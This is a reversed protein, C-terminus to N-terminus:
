PNETPLPHFIDEQLPVPFRWDFPFVDEKSLSLASMANNDDSAIWGGDIWWFISNLTCGTDTDVRFVSVIEQGSKTVTTGSIWYVGSGSPVVRPSECTLQDTKSDERFVFSRQTRLLNFHQCLEADNVMEHELV